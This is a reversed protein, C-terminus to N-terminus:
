SGGQAKALYRKITPLSPPKENPFQARFVDRIAKAEENHGSLAQCNQSRALIINDLKGGFQNPRGGSNKLPAGVIARVDAIPVMAGSVPDFEVVDDLRVTKAKPVMLSGDATLILRFPSKVERRLATELDQLVEASHLCPHLYITADSVPTEM